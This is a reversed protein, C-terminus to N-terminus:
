YSRSREIEVGVSEVDDYLSIKELRIKVYNIRNDQLCLGAIEESLTEIFYFHQSIVFKKIDCILSDYCYVQSLEAKNSPVEAIYDCTLSLRISQPTKIEHPLIGVHAPLVFNQVVIRWKKQLPSEPCPRTPFPFYIIKNM